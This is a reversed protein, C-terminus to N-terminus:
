VLRFEDVIIALKEVVRVDVRQHDGSGVMPVGQLGDVAAERPLIDVDLLGGAVVDQFPLDGDGGGAFVLADHLDAGLHSTRLDQGFGAVVNAAARQSLHDVALRPLSIAVARHFEGAGSRGKLGVM